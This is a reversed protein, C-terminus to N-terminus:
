RTTSKITQGGSYRYDKPINLEFLHNKMGAIRFTRTYVEEGNNRCSVTVEQTGKPAVYHVLGRGLHQSGVYIEMQDEDCLFSIPISGACSTLLLLTGLIPFILNKM